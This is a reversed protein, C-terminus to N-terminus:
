EEAANVPDLCRIFRRAMAVTRFSGPLKDGGASRRASSPRPRAHGRGVPLATRARFRAILELPATAPPTSHRRILLKALRPAQGGEAGRWSLLERNGGVRPRAGCARRGNNRPPAQSNASGPSLYRAGSDQPMGPPPIGVM